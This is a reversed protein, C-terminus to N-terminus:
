IGFCVWLDIGGGISKILTIVVAACAVALLACLVGKRIRGVRHVEDSVEAMYEIFEKSNAGHYFLEELEKLYVKTWPKEKREPSYSRPREDLFEREIKQLEAAVMRRSCKGEVIKAVLECQADTFKSM